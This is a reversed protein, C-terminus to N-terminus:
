AQPPSKQYGSNAVFGGVELGIPFQVSFGLKDFAAGPVGVAKAFNPRLFRASHHNM